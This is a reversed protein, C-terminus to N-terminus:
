KVQISISSDYELRKGQIFKNDDGDLLTFTWLGKRLPVFSFSGNIDTFIVTEAIDEKIFAGTTTDLETDGLTYNLYEIQIKAHPIRKGEDNVAEARFLSGAYVSDPQVLPIIEPMNMLVRNPENTIFGLYNLCFKAVKQRYCGEYKKWHAKHTVVIIYDGPKFFGSKKNIPITYTERKEGRVTYYDPIAASHLKRAEKEHIVFISDLGKIDKSDEVSLRIGMLDSGTAPHFHLVKFTKQGDKNIHPILATTHAIASAPFLVIIFLNLFYQMLRIRISSLRYIYNM